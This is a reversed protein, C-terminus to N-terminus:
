FTESTTTSGLVGLLLHLSMGAAGCGQGYNINDYNEVKAMISLM